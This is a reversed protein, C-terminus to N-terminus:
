ALGKWWTGNKRAEALIKKASETTLHKEAYDVYDKAHAKGAQLYEIAQLALDLKDADRAVAAEKSTGHNFEEILKVYREGLKGPMLKAQDAAAKKEAKEKDFYKRQVTDLDGMRAEPLDHFAAMMVAKAPDAGEMEALIGALIATSATHDAVSEPLEVGAYQWGRRERKLALVESAILSPKNTNEM